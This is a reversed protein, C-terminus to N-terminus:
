RKAFLNEGMIGTNLNITIINTAWGHRARQSGMSQLGGRKETWPINWALLTPQWERRWPIKRVWPEFRLRRFQLSIRSWRLWWPLKLWTSTCSCPPLLLGGGGGGQGWSKQAVAASVCVWHFLKFGVSLRICGPLFGSFIHKYLLISGPFGWVPEALDLAISNRSGGRGWGNPFPSSHTSSQMVAVCGKGQGEEMLPREACARSM